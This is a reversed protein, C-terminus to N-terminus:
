GIKGRLVSRDTCGLHRCLTTKDNQGKHGNLTCIYIYRLQRCPIVKDKQRIQGRLTSKNIYGLQSM